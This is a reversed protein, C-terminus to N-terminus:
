RAKAGQAAIVDNMNEVSVPKSPARLMGKLSSIPSTAPIIVYKGKEVEVFEIRSGAALGLAVRVVVPITIQGKSTLTATSM